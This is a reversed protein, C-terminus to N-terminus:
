ENKLKELIEELEAKTIHLMGPHYSRSVDIIVEQESKSTLVDYSDTQKYLERDKPSDDKRTDQFSGQMSERM